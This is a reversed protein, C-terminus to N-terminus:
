KSANLAMECGAPPHGTGDSTISLM